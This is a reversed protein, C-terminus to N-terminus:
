AGRRYLGRQDRAGGREAIAGDGQGILTGQRADNARVLLGLAGLPVLVKTPASMSM